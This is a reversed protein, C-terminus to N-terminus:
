CPINVHINANTLMLRFFFLGSKVVRDFLEETFRIGDSTSQLKVRISGLNRKSWVFQRLCLQSEEPKHKGDNAKRRICLCRSFFTSETLNERDRNEKM